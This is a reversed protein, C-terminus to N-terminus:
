YESSFYATAKRRDPSLYVRKVKQTDNYFAIELKFYKVKSDCSEIVPLKYTYGTADVFWLQYTNSLTGTGFTKICKDTSVTPELKIKIEQNSREFTLKTPLYNEAVYVWGGQFIYGSISDAQTSFSTLFILTAILKM